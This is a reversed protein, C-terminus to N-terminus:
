AAAGRVAISFEEDAPTAAEAPLAYGGHDVVPDAATGPNLEALLALNQNLIFEVAAANNQEETQKKQRVEDHYAPGLEFKEATEPIVGANYKGQLCVANPDLPTLPVVVQQPLMRTVQKRGTRRWGILFLYTLCAAIASAVMMEKSMTVGDSRAATPVASAKPEPVQERIVVVNPVATSEAVSRTAPPVVVPAPVALWPANPHSLSPLSPPTTYNTLIIQRPESAPHTREAIKGLLGLTASGVQNSGDRLDRLTEIFADAARAADGPSTVPTVAVAAASAVQAPPLVPTVKQTGYYIEISALPAPASLPVSSGPSVPLLAPPTDQAFLSGGTGAFAALAGAASLLRRRIRIRPSM